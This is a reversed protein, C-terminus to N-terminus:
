SSAKSACLKFTSLRRGLRVSDSILKVLRPGTWATNSIMPMMQNTGDTPRATVENRVRPSIEADPQHVMALPFRVMVSLSKSNFTM